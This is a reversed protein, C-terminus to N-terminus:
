SPWRPEYGVGESLNVIVKVIEDRIRKANEDDPENIFHLFGGGMGRVIVGRGEAHVAGKAETGEFCNGHPDVVPYSISRRSMTKMVM